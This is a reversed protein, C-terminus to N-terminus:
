KEELIEVDAGLPRDHDTVTFECQVPQDSNGALRVTVDHRAVVDFRGLNERGSASVRGLVIRLSLRVPKATGNTAVTTVTVRDGLVDVTPKAVHVPPRLLDWAVVCALAVLFFLGWFRWPSNTKRLSPNAAPHYDAPNFRERRNM